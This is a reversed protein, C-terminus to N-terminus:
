GTQWPANLAPKGSTKMQSSVPPEGILLQPLTSAVSQNLMFGRAKRSSKRSKLARSQSAQSATILKRRFSLAKSPCNLHATTAQM